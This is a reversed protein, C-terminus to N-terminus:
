RQRGDEITLQLDKSAEHLDTGVSLLEIGILQDEEGYDLVVGPAVRESGTVAGEALRLYVAGEEPDFHIKM